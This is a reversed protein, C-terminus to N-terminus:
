IHKQHLLKLMINLIGQRAISLYNFSSWSIRSTCRDFGLSPSSSMMFFSMIALNAGIVNMKIPIDETKVIQPYNYLIRYGLGNQFTIESFVVHNPTVLGSM